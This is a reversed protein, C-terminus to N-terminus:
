SVVAQLVRAGPARTGGRWSLRGVLAPLGWQRSVQPPRPLRPRRAGPPLRCGVRRCCRLGRFAPQDLRSVPEVHASFLRHFQMSARPRATMARPARSALRLRAAPWGQKERQWAQCKRPSFHGAHLQPCAASLCAAAVPQWCAPLLAAASLLLLCRNIAAGLFIAYFAPFKGRAECMRKHFAFDGKTGKKGATSFAGCRM